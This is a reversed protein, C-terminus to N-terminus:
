IREASGITVPRGAKDEVGGAVDVASGDVSTNEPKSCYELQTRMRISTPALGYQMRKGAGIIISCKGGTHRATNGWERAFRILTERGMGTYKESWAPTYPAAEDDYGEPYAGPLGRPVGYQAMLLDYVTAVVVTSGDAAMLRRVPVGRLVTCGLGFDDLEVEVAEEGLFSLVPDIASRCVNRIEGCPFITFSHSTVSM